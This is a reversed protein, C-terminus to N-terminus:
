VSKLFFNLQKIPELPGWFTTNSSTQCTLKKAFADVTKLIGTMSLTTNSLWSALSADALFISWQFPAQLFLLFSEFSSAARVSGWVELNEDSSALAHLAGLQPCKGGRRGGGVDPERRAEIQVAIDSVDVASDGVEMRREPGKRAADGVGVEFGGFRGGSQLLMRRVMMREESTEFASATKAMNSGIAGPRRDVLAAAM